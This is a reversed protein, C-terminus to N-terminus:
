PTPRDGAATEPPQAAPTSEPPKVPTPSFALSSVVSLAVWCVVLCIGFRQLAVDVTVDGQYVLWVLPSAVVTAAGLVVGHPVSM